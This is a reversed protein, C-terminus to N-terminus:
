SALTKMWSVLAQYNAISSHAAYFNNLAPLASTWPWDANYAWFMEGIFDNFYTCNMFQDPTYYTGADSPLEGVVTPKDLSWWSASERCPDYGWDSNYMWDYYHIQYFNLYASSSSYAAKLAADNWWNAVAPPVTASDWKLCASGTTVIQGPAKQHIAEAVMGHFRQMQSLTCCTTLSCPTDNIAWEPENMVEWIINPRTGLASLIPYLANNIYSQSKSSDTVLDPHLGPAGKFMDFSWLSIVLVVNYSAAMDVLKTLDSIFTSSLGTVSGSSDFNPSCRGDCHVWFRAVNVHNAQAQKFFSEFWNSDFANCGIDYGFQNWPINVGNFWATALSASPAALASGLLAFLLPTM